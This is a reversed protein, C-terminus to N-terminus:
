VWSESLTLVHSPEKRPRMERKVRNRTLFVLLSVSSSSWACHAPPPTNRGSGDCESRGRRDEEGRECMSESGSKPISSLTRKREYLLLSPNMLSHAHLFAPEAGKWTEDTRGEAPIRSFSCSRPHRPHFQLKQLKWSCTSSTHQTAILLGSESIQRTNKFGGAGKRVPLLRVVDAENHLDRRLAAHKSVGTDRQTELPSAIFDVTDHVHAQFGGEAPCKRDM